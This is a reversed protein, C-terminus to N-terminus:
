KKTVNNHSDIREDEVEKSKADIIVSGAKKKLFDSSSTKLYTLSKEKLFSIFNQLFILSIIFIILLLVALSVFVILLFLLIDAM